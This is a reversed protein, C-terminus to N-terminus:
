VAFTVGHSARRVEDMGSPHSGLGERTEAFRPRRGSRRITRTLVVAVTCSVWGPWGGDRRRGARCACGNGRGGVPGADADGGVGADLSHGGGDSPLGGDPGWGGDLMLDNLLDAWYAPCITGVPTEAPCGLDNEVDAFSWLPELTDGADRSVAIAFEHAFGDACVWLEGPRYALCRVRLAPDLLEFTRGGDRSRFLGGLRNGVWVTRGDESMAFGGVSGIELVSAWTLGGDESRLIREPRADTPGRVARVLLRDADTPDIGLLFVTREGELLAVPLLTWSAGRDDSRLVVGRRPETDTRPIVGSTYLRAPRSPAIRIRDTLAREHPAAIRSWSNGEDDSRYIADPRTGPSEICWVVGEASPDLALDTVYADRPATAPAYWRCGSPDTRVLGEFTAALVAGSPVVAITPEERMGDFPVAAACQWTWSRGGDRTMLLGWTARVVVHAPDRPDFAIQGVAAPVGHARV